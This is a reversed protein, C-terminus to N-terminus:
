WSGRIGAVVSGVNGSSQFDGNVDIYLTFRQSPSFSLGAGAIWSNRDWSEAVIGIGTRTPDGLLTASFSPTSSFERSYGARVEVRGTGGGAEFARDIRVGLTGRTSNLVRSAVALDVSVAGTETFGDQSERIWQLAAFPEIGYARHEFRYRGILYATFQDGDYDARATRDITGFAVRRDTEYRVNGYGLVGDVSLPGDTYRGYGGIRYVKADARDGRGDTTVRWDSVAASANVIWRDDLAVDAGLILGGIRYGYDGSSADGELDGDLGYGGLWANRSGPGNTPSAGAATLASPADSRTPGASSAAQAVQVGSWALGTGVSGDSRLRLRSATARHFQTADSVAITPLLTHILGGISEYASRAQPATLAAVAGIVTSLDGTAVPAAADLAGAVARQNPTLAVAAFDVGNRSLELYVNNPDYSLTPTLFALSSTVGAFTGGVGGHCKRDHLPHRQRLQRRAGACGVAGGALTATGNM